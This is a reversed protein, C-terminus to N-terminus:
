KRHTQMYERPSVGYFNKFITSFSTANPFGCVYMVETVNRNSTALLHAAQKLRINRIFAHPTQNTLEKMKRYLHVRSIGVEKAIVDVSLDSNSLNDNIVKMVKELLKEDLSEMKVKMVKEDQSENGNFKNRLLERQHLLNMMVRRLIDMNFPKVLYADAGSELGELRDEDRNKATLLIVPIHNTNINNKMRLCLTNGDMRPMMIDSIVLSPIEKLVTKLAEEGNPCVTVDFDRELESKLYQCIEDDDEAIVIHQRKRNSLKENINGPKVETELLREEPTLLVDDAQELSLTEEENLMEESKLHKCGLPLTVVMECGKGDPLNRAEINGYHLEVISRALDLGIGTGVNRDNLRAPMQYFREFIRGLKEEPITDGDNAITIRAMTTDQTLKITVNGGTNCFKFANSLLNMLVKDFNTRDIWVPLLETDHEFNFKVNKAKAQYLFLSYIDKIFDVMNTKSMRMVMQGKDIKRLDMMQNILSLIREANRHITEYISRRHADTDEKILQLLPTVILTMPTRIEHSMNVFFRLKAESLEEAHIYAQLRLRDAEKRQRYAWYLWALAVLLLLYCGYAIDSRYWPARVKVTFVKEASLMNNCSARVKFKYTGPSLHTFAIENSGPTLRIWKEGNISYQYVVNDPDDYTLTSLHISFSNDEYDMVLENADPSVNMEQSGVTLGTIKVTAKWHPVQVRSTTLWTIGGTGGLLLERGDESMFSAGDTFENGQLGRDVYFCMVRGTTTNLCGLGHDTGIWLRGQADNEISAIGNDPLGDKITLMQASHKKLDYVYLGDNTGLYVKGDKGERVVRSFIGYKPCNVGFTSLWSQTKLELCCLGVSTAVYLRRRDHSFAMKFIFDNVLSNVKNNAEAHPKMRYMRLDGSRTNLRVIGQGMTGFWMCGTKDSVISFVSTQSGLGFDKPHYTESEASVWGCGEEYSGLWIHGENDEAMSLITGPVHTYHRLLKRHSDLLYLGDKDTGVWLRHKSDVLVSSVCNSGIVNSPGMKAGMYGFTSQPVPQKFVGKQLLGLWLNDNRDELIAYVKTHGLDVDKSFYPNSVLVDHQPDYVYLGTGDCGLMLKGQKNVYLKNIPLNGVSEVRFFHKQESDLHWLGHGFVALWIHGKRDISIDRLANSMQKNYFYHGVVKKGKLCYLGHFATIVWLRGQKDELIRKIHLLASPLGAITHATCEGEVRMLGSGSTGILLDGNRCQQIDNIYPHVLQGTPGILRLTDFSEGNYKQVTLNTGIYLTHAKDEFLCNIFNSTLGSKGDERKYIKFRYGDYRDLGNRTAVWMFGDHDQFVQSVFSNSLQNDATYLKGMQAKGALPLLLGILLCFIRTLM